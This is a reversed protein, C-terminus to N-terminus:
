ESEHQWIVDVPPSSENPGRFCISLIELNPSLQRLYFPVGRDNRAHGCGMIGVIQPYHDAEVLIQRAMHLDRGAQLKALRHADDASMEFPHVEMMEQVLAKKSQSSLMPFAEDGTKELSEMDANLGFVKWDREKALKFLPRYFKFPPWGREEWRLVRPLERLDSSGILSTQSKDMQEFGLAAKELREAIQIQARHDKKQGHREGLLVVKATQLGAGFEWKEFRKEESRVLISKSACGCLMFGWILLILRRMGRYGARGAKFDIASAAKESDSKKSKLAKRKCKINDM